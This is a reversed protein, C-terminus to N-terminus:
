LEEESLADLVRIQEMTRTGIVDGGPFEVRVDLSVTDGDELAFTETQSLPVLFVGTESDFAVDQPYVKRIDEGVMFEVSEILALDAATIPEGDVSVRIPLAYADGQKITYKETTM